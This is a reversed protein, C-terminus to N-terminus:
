ITKTLHQKTKFLTHGVLYRLESRGDDTQPPPDQHQPKDQTDPMSNALNIIISERSFFSFCYPVTQKYSKISESLMPAITTRDWVIKISIMEQRRRGERGSQLWTAQIINPPSSFLLEMPIATKETCIVMTRPVTYFMWCESM